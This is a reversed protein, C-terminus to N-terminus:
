ATVAAPSAHSRTAGRAQSLWRATHVVGGFSFLHIGTVNAGGHGRHRAIAAVQDGPDTQMALRAIGSGLQGLARRSANVGCLRAYKLLKVPDTPGAVGAHVPVGPVARALAVTCEVVRRPAFSFQTVLFSRLGQGRAVEVKQGLIGRLRASDVLPHGEPHAAFGVEALGARALLGSDLLALSDKFPGAPVPQDGAVVLVRRVGADRVMSELLAALDLENDIRRAALHPVPEFGLERVRVVAALLRATDQRPLWPVFIRTGPELLGVADGLAAAEAPLMELSWELTHDVSPENSPM